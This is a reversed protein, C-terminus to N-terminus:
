KACARVLTYMYILYSIAVREAERESWQQIQKAIVDALLNTRSGYLLDGADPMDPFSAILEKDAKLIWTQVYDLHVDPNSYTIVPLQAWKAGSPTYDLHTPWREIGTFNKLGFNSRGDMACGDVYAPQQNEILSATPQSTQLTESGLVNNSQM